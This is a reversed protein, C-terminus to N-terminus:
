TAGRIATSTWVVLESMASGFAADLAAAAVPATVDKAPASLQFVQTAIVRGEAGLVKATFEVNALREPSAVIEFNRIDLVLQFSATQGDVPRGVNSLFSANEFSQIVRSQILNALMDISRADTIPSLGGGDRVFIKDQGLAFAVTPEAVSLDAVQPKEFAPFSRPATLDYVTAASKSGGGTLRELGAVIGDVRDSNRGLADSFKSLNAITNRLPDANDAILTDVRHLAERAAQSMSQGAAPDAVLTPPEGNAGVLRTVSTGGNLAVAPSGMLGPFDIGATTDEGVPTGPDVGITVTIDRPKKPDLNLTVVEGVRVGNFLVASGVLLGSVSNQYRVRYFARERLGGTTNLWYVFAFGAAIVALTFAGVLVYRARTEM